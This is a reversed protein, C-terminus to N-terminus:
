RGGGGFRAPGPLLNRHTVAVARHDGTGLALVTVEEGTKLRDTAGTDGDVTTSGDLVYDVTYGDMSAVKVTTGTVTSITGRQVRYSTYGGREDASVFDGHVATAVIRMAAGAHEGRPGDGPGAGWGAGPGGGPGPFGYHGPRGGDASAAIAVGGTVVIALGAVAAIVTRRLSWRRPTSQTNSM